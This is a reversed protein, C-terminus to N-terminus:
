FPAKSDTHHICPIKSIESTNQAWFWPGLPLLSHPKWSFLCVGTWQGWCEPNVIITHFGGIIPAAHPCSTSCFSISSINSLDSGRGQIAWSRTPSRHQGGQGMKQDQLHLEDAQSEFNYVAREYTEQLPEGGGGRRDRFKESQAIVGRLAEQEASIVDM